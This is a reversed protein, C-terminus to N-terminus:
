CSGESWSFLAWSSSSVYVFTSFRFIDSACTYSNFPFRHTCETFKWQLNDSCFYLHHKTSSTLRWSHGTSHQYVTLLQSELFPVQQSELLWYKWWPQNWRGVCHWQVHLQCSILRCVVPCVCCVCLLRFAYTNSFYLFSVLFDHIQTNIM